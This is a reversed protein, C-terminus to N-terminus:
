PDMRKLHYERYGVKRLEKRTFQSIPGAPSSFPGSLLAHPPPMHDFYMMRMYSFTMIHGM